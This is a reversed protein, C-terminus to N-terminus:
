VIGITKYAYEIARDAEIEFPRSGYWGGNDRDIERCLTAIENSTIPYKRYLASTAISVMIKYMTHYWGAASINAYQAVLKKNIFPCDRYNNWRIQNNTMQEKQRAILSKQMSEPLRDFFSLKTNDEWPYKVMLAEPNIVSGTDHNIFFNHADPYVAPVYYMRSMDKTQPDGIEGFHKNIAYWFHKINDHSIDATLPFVVRFKPHEPTSSATSYCIYVYDKYKDMVEEFTGEYDDM